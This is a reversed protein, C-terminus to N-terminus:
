PTGYICPSVLQGTVSLFFQFTHFHLTLQDNDHIIEITYVITTYKIWTLSTVVVLTSQTFESSKWPYFGCILVSLGNCMDSFALLNTLQHKLGLRIVSSLSVKASLYVTSLVLLVSHSLPSNDPSNISHFVTSLAMFVSVSVLVSYFPTPLCQQNIDFVYLTANGGRSPSGTPVDSFPLTLVSYHQLNCLCQKKILLKATIEM